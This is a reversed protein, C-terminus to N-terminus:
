IRDRRNGGKAGNDGPSVCVVIPFATCFPTREIVVIFPLTAATEHGSGVSLRDTDNLPYISNFAENLKNRFTDNLLSSSNAAGNTLQDLIRLKIRCVEQGRKDEVVAKAERFGYQWQLHTFLQHAYWVTSRDFQVQHRPQKLQVTYVQKHNKGVLSIAEFVNLQFLKRPFMDDLLAEVDSRDGGAIPRGAEVVRVTGLPGDEVADFPILPWPLLRWGRRLSFKGPVGNVAFWKAEAERFGFKRELSWFVHSGRSTYSSFRLGSGEPDPLWRLDMRGSSLTVPLESYFPSLKGMFFRFRGLLLEGEKAEVPHLESGVYTFEM